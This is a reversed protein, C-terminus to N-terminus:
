RVTRGDTDLITVEGFQIKRVSPEIVSLDGVVIWTLAEPHV